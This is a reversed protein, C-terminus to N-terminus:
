GEKFDSLFGIKTPRPPLALLGSRVPHPDPIGAMNLDMLPQPVPNLKGGVHPKDANM